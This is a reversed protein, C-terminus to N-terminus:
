DLDTLDVDPPPRASRAAGGAAGAREDRGGGGDAVSKGHFGPTTSMRPRKRQGANGVCPPRITSTPNLSCADRAAASAAAASNLDAIEKKLDENEKKLDQNKAKLGDREEMYTTIYLNLNKCEEAHAKKLKEIESEESVRDSEESDRDSEEAVYQMGKGLGKGNKGRGVTPAPRVAAEVNKGVGGEAM